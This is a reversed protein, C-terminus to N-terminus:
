DLRSRALKASLLRIHKLGLALFKTNLAQTPKAGLVHSIYYREVAQKTFVCELSPVYVTSQALHSALVALAHPVGFFWCGGFFTGQAFYVGLISQQCVRIYGPAFITEARLKLAVASLHLICLLRIKVITRQAFNFRNPKFFALEALTLFTM